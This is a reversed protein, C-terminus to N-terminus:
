GRRLVLEHDLTGGVKFRYSGVEAFGRGKYFALARENRSWVGIWLPHRGEAALWALAADMLAAGTGGGQWAPLLYIRKLEGCGPTV